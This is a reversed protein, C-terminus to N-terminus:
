KQSSNELSTKLLPTNWIMRYTNIFCISVIGGRTQNFAKQKEIIRFHGEALAKHDGDLGITVLHRQNTSIQCQNESRVLIKKYLLLNLETLKSFGDTKTYLSYNNKFTANCYRM